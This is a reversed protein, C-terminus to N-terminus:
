YPQEHGTMKEWAKFDEYCCPCAHKGFGMCKSEKLPGTIYEDFFDPKWKVIQRGCLDCIIRNGDIM